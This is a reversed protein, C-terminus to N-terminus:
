RPDRPRASSHRRGVSARTEVVHKQWECGHPRLATELPKGWLGWSSAALPGMRVEETQIAACRKVYSNLTLAEIPADAAEEPGHQRPVGATAWLLSLALALPRYRVFRSSSEIVVRPMPSSPTHIVLPAEPEVDDHVLWSRSRKRLEEAAQIKVLTEELVSWSDWRDHADKALCREVLPGLARAREPLRPVERELQRHVTEEPFLTRVPSSGTLAEWLVLGLGYVDAALTLPEGLLMEPALYEPTLWVPARVHPAPALSLGFDVLTPAQLGEKAGFFILDPALRGLPRPARAKLVQCLGIGLQLTEDLTLPGRTMLRTRLCDPPLPASLLYPRGEPTQASEEWPLIGFGGERMRLEAEGIFRGVREAQDTLEPRLMEVVRRGPADGRHAVFVETAPGEALKRLILFDSM